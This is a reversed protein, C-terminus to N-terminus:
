PPFSKETQNSLGLLGNIRKNETSSLHRWAATSGIWGQGLWLVTEAGDDAEFTLTYEIPPVTNWPPVWDGIVADLTFIWQLVKALRAQDEITLVIEESLDSVTIRRLSTIDPLVPPGTQLADDPVWHLESLDAIYCRVQSVGVSFTSREQLPKLGETVDSVLEQHEPILRKRLREGCRDRPHLRLRWRNNGQLMEQERLRGVESLPVVVLTTGVWGRINPVEQGDFLFVRAESAQATELTVPQEFAGVFRGFTVISDDKVQISACSALLLVFLGVAVNKM